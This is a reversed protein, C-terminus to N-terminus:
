DCKVAAEDAKCGHACARARQYKGGKCELAAKGDASCAAEREQACADGEDAISTDCGVVAGSVKCGKAGRCKRSETWRKDKCALLAKGDASCSWNEPLAAGCAEGPNARSTDCSVSSSPKCGEPGRCSEVSTWQGGVCELHADREVSCAHNGERECAEGARSLSDDCSM